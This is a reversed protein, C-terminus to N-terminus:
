TVLEQYGYEDVTDIVKLHKKGWKNNEMRGDTLKNM